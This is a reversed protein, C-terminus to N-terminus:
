PQIGLHLFVEAVTLQSFWAGILEAANIPQMAEESLTSKTIQRLIKDICAIAVSETNFSLLDYKIGFLLAEKTITTFGKIREALQIVLTPNERVLRHIGYTRRHRNVETRTAAHLTLPLCLFILPYPVGPSSSHARAVQYSYAYRALICACYAPNLLREIEPSMFHSSTDAPLAVM